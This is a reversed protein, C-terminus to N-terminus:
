LGIGKSECKHHLRKIRAWLKIIEFMILKETLPFKFNKSLFLFQAEEGGSCGMSENSSACAILEDIRLIAQHGGCRGVKM